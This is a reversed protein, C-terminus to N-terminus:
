HEFFIINKLYIFFFWFSERFYLANLNSKELKNWHMKKIMFVTIDQAINFSCFIPTISINNFYSFMNLGTTPPKFSRFTVIFNRHLTSKLPLFSINILNMMLAHKISKLYDCKFNLFWNHRKYVYIRKGCYFLLM